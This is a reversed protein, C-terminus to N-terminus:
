YGVQQGRATRTHKEENEGRQNQENDHVTGGCRDFPNTHFMLERQADQERCDLFKYLCVFPPVSEVGDIKTSASHPRQKQLCKRKFCIM